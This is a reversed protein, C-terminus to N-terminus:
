VPATLHHTREPCANPPALRFPTGSSAAQSVTLGEPCCISCDSFEGGTPYDSLMMLSTAQRLGRCYQNVHVKGKGREYVGRAVFFRVAAHRLEEQEGGPPSLSFVHGSMCPRCMAYYFPIGAGDLDYDLLRIM